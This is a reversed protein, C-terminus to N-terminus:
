LMSGGDKLGVTERGAEISLYVGGGGGGGALRGEQMLNFHLHFVIFQYSRRM